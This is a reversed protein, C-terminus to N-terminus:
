MRFDKLHRSMSEFIKDIQEPTSEPSIHLQINIHLQPLQGHVSPKKKTEESSSDSDEKEYSAVPVAQNLSPKARGATTKQKVSPAKSKKPTSNSAETPDARLLLMYFIAYMKAAPAGCRCYNMFWSAISNLDSDSSHFLDRLEQPYIKDIFAACVSPYKADDRWEYVLDTPKGTDDLFELKRLPAILNSKASAETMSLATALYSSTVTVPVKQNFLDRLKWWSSEAIKPFSKDLEAM